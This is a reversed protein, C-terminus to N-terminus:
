NRASQSNRASQDILVSEGNEVELNFFDNKAILPLPTYTFSAPTKWFDPIAFVDARKDVSMTLKATSADSDTRRM